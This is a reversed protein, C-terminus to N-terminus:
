GALREVVAEGALEAALAAVVAPDFQTGACRSLEALADAQLRAEQYPRGSTIADYAEAVFIIRAELPIEAGRMGSPYGTGDWREHQHLVWDAIAGAGISALIRRGIEPHERLVQWERQELGGPKRLIEVPVALKGLDHLRAALRVLEAEVPQLGCRVALRAALDSVRFSHSGAPDADDALGDAVDILEALGWAADLRHEEAAARRAQSLIAVHSDFVHVQNRGLRKAQYLAADANAFLRDPDATGDAPSVAIGASVTVFGGWPQRQGGIRGIVASTIERAEDADVDPLVIAFEDGGLRFARGDHRIHGALLVLVDDGAQHGHRDNIQKFGDADLLCLAIPSSGHCLDALSEHFARHNGLGTLPDTKALRMAELAGNVSRQYLGVAVLPGALAIATVPSRQWLVVLMLSLSAMIMFPVATWRVSQRVVSTFRAHTARAVIGAVLPVNVAYFALMAALVGAILGVVPRGRDASQAAVGAALGSLAFVAGNYTVKVLPRRQALEITVRTGVSVLVAVRWDYILAAAVLFSAALSVGGVSVGQIPVPYAEAATAAVLLVLAGAVEGPTVERMALAGVALATAVTGALVVPIAVPLLWATGSTSERSMQRRRRRPASNTSPSPAPSVSTAPLSTLTTDGARAAPEALAGPEGVAALSDRGIVTMLAEVVAPDFQTGANARLEAVAAEHTLASRYSRDTTMASFADCCMVIRAVRPIEDGALGDPYGNGDWREHCSRVLRGVNGLLGGVQSLMAEGDVTHLKILAWEEASLPGPKSILESPIRIKGVDHLLATFETDRREADELRLEEAVAKALAVVHRSHMGTYADDGDIVDGLLFATGRYAESLALAGDIRASREHAFVRLLGALPVALLVGISSQVAAFGVALGVSALVADIIQARVVHPVASKVLARGAIAEHTAIVGIEVVFQTSLALLLIPWASWTLRPQGFAWLVLVPGITYWASPVNLLLRQPVIRGRAWDVCAGGLLGLVVAFPVIRLPLVFLMPVFVLQTPVSAGNFAEFEVRSLVAFTAVFLAITLLGPNRQEPVVLLLGSAVALFAVGLVVVARREGSALVEESAVRQAGVAEDAGADYLLSPRGREVLHNESTSM